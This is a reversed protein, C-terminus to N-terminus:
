CSVCSGVQTATYTLANRQYQRVNSSDSLFFTQGSGVEADFAALNDIITVSTGGCFTNDGGSFTVNGSWAGTFTCAAVGSSQSISFSPAATTTTTTTSTTTTAATTTTTTTSTTTTSAATTTTTTTSTTTTTPGGGCLDLNGYVNTDDTTYLFTTGTIGFLGFGLANLANVLGQETTDFFV